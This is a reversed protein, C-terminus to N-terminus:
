KGALDLSGRHIWKWERSRYSGSKLQLGDDFVAMPQVTCADDPQWAASLDFFDGKNLDFVYVSPACASACNARPWRSDWLHELGARIRSVTVATAARKSRGNFRVFDRANAYDPIVVAGVPTWPYPNHCGDPPGYLLQFVRSSQRVAPDGGLPTGRGLAGMRRVIRSTEAYFDMECSIFVAAALHHGAHIHARCSGYALENRLGEAATTQGPGSRANGVAPGRWGGASLALAPQWLPLRTFPFADVTTLQVSVLGLWVAVASGSKGALSSWFTFGLTMVALASLFM